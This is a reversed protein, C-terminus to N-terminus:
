LSRWVKFEEVTKDKKQRTCKRCSTTLNEFDNSGGKSIPTIHDCELIGGIQGCYSCTYNDRKFIFSTIKKWEKVNISYLREYKVRNLYELYLEYSVKGFGFKRYNWKAGEHLFNYDESLDIRNNKISEKKLHYMNTSIAIDREYAM